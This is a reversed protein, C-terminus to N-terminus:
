VKVITVEIPDSAYGGNIQTVRVKYASPESGFDAVLNANSYTYSTTSQSVTRKLANGTTLFEVTFSGAVPSVATANGAPQMGAGTKPLVTSRYSWLVSLDQGTAYANVQAHPATVQLAVPDMPVVGKGHLITSAPSVSSLPIQGASATPQTKAYLDEGPSLLIDQIFEISTNEFIFVKASAPHTLQVTDYRARVLGNLQYTSGGLATVGALFCIETGADSVIVCLQRGLLWNTADGSLDLVTGIDPGLATITPGVALYMDGTSDLQADLTGGTQVNFDTESLTYTSDDRSIWLDASIVQAHARIRPVIVTMPDGNLLYAPVEVIEFSEDPAIDFLSPIGGGQQNQFDSKRSGYYDITAKLKVASTLPDMQVGLVRLIDPVGEVILAQGPILERAGRAGDITIVGAGALDEQSRREAIVAASPFHVTTPIDVVRSRQNEQYSAQGDDDIAITMDGYSHQRDQFKFVLRDVPREGHDKELEPLTVLAGELLEPLTGSPQRVMVFSLLGSSTDIPLLTGMDQIFAALAANAKEGNVGVYSARLGDAEADLGLAELSPIDWPEEDDTALSVGQPWESFLIEAICHAHNLGDDDQEVYAQMTGSSNGGSVGGYIYVRTHTAYISLGTLPHTGTVVQLTTSRLVDYDGDAFSNGTLRVQRGNRFEQTQDGAFQFYGTGELGNSFGVVSASPGTLARTPEYYAPTSTLITESIQPRREIIYDIVSWQPNNGLRKKNWVIYCHFPWRSTIGIRSANGLFANTPQDEEGWYIVFSGEKGLNVTSGSPHSDATIPGDFIVQGNQLIQHLAWVPGNSCLVHLGAEYFIEVKQSSGSGKGGGSAKEKKIERDGAWCFAPGVRRRGLVYNLYSGRTTLTTPKDDDVKLGSKKALLRGALYSLAFSLAMYGLQVWSTKENNHKLNM